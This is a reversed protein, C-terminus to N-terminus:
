ERVSGKARGYSEEAEFGALTRVLEGFQLDCYEDIWDAIFWMRDSGNHVGFLIPDRGQGRMASKQASSMSKDAELKKPDFCHMIVFGDFFPRAADRKELIDKPIPRMFAREETLAIQGGRIRDFWKEVVKYEVYRDYGKVISITEKLRLEIENWLSLAFVDQDAAIAENFVKEIAAVEKNLQETQKKDLLKLLRKSYRFFLEQDIKGPEEKKAQTSGYSSTTSSSSTIGWTALGVDAISIFGNGSYPINLLKRKKGFSDVFDSFTFCKDKGFRKQIDMPRM